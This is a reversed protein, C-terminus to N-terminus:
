TILEEIINRGISDITHKHFIDMITFGDNSLVIVGAGKDKLLGCFSQYGGTAGNHWHVIQNCGPIPTIHWGLGIGGTDDELTPRKGMRNILNGVMKILRPRPPNEIRLEHAAQMARNLSSTNGNLNAHLFTLMDNVSSRIGGAGTLTPVDWNQVATGRGSRPTALRQRQDASLTISTSHMGLPQFIYETVAQEYSGGLRKALVHGLLGMGLNSYRIQGFPSKQPDVSYNSLFTYLEEVSYAAYPNLKNKKYSRKLNYPVRPLGSSHTALRELTVAESLNQLEPLLSCVPENLKVVGLDVLVSLLTTTFVKSISGIEFITDGNCHGDIVAASKDFSYVEFGEKKTIGIVLNLESKRAVFPDVIREITLQM